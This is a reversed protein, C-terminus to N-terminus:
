RFNIFRFIGTKKSGTIVVWKGYLVGHIWESLLAAIISVV